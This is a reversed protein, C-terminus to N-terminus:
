ARTLGYDLLVARGDATKGWHMIKTLDGPSLQQRRAIRTVVRTWGDIGAQSRHRHTQSVATVFGGWPVGTLEEFEATGSLPRVLESILWDHGPGAELVRAAIQHAEPLASLGAETVNQDVGVTNTAIKLVRHSDLLFVIRGSGQGLKELFYMAYMFMM